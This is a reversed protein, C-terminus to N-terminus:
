AVRLGISESPVSKCVKCVADELHSHIQEFRWVRFSRVFLRSPNLAPTWGNAKIWALLFVEARQLQRNSGFHMSDIDIYMPRVSAGGAADRHPGVDPTTGAIVSVCIGISNSVEQQEITEAVVQFGLNPDSRFVIPFHRPRSEGM